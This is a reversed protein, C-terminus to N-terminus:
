FFDIKKRCHPCKEKREKQFWKLFCSRCMNKECCNLVTITKEYCIVCESKGKLSDFTNIQFIDVKRRKTTQFVPINKEGVLVELLNMLKLIKCGPCQCESERERTRTTFSM